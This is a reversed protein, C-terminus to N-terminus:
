GLAFDALGAARPAPDWGGPVGMDRPMALGPARMARVGGDTACVAAATAVGTALSVTLRHHGPSTLNHPLKHAASSKAERTLGLPTSTASCSDSAPPIAARAASSRCARTQATDAPRTRAAGSLLNARSQTKPGLAEQRPRRRHKGRAEGPCPTPQKSQIPRTVTLTHHWRGVRLPLARARGLAPEVAANHRTRSASAAVAM